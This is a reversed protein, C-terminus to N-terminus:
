DSMVARDPVKGKWYRAPAKAQPQDQRGEKFLVSYKDAGSAM